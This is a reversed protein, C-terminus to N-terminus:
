PRVYMMITVYFCYKYISALLLRNKTRAAHNYQPILPNYSLFYGNWYMCIPSIVITSKNINARSEVADYMLWDMNKINYNPIYRTGRRISKGLSKGTGCVVRLDDRAYIRLRTIKM